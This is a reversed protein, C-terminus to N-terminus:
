NRQTIYIVNILLTLYQTVSLVPVVYLKYMAEEIFCYVDTKVSYYIYNIGYLMIKCYFYFPVFPGHRKLWVLSPM